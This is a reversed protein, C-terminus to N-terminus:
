RRRDAIELGAARLGTLLQGAYERDFRWREIDGLVETEFAPDLELVRHAAARAVEDKGSLGAAAAVMLHAVVWNPADIQQAATLAADLHGARLYAVAQGFYYTGVLSKSLEKARELL